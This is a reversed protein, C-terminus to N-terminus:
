FSKSKNLVESKEAIFQKVLRVEDEKSNIEGKIRKEIIKNFIEKYVAGPKLGM